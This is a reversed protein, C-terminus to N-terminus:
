LGGYTDAGLCYLGKQKQDSVYAALIEAIFLTNSGTDIQNVVKCELNVDCNEILPPKIWKAKKTKLTSEKLKDVTHGSHTGCYLVTEQMSVTPYSLVFEKNQSILRNTYREKCVSIAVMFPDFSTLTCWGITMVNAKGSRDISTLLFLREPFRKSVAKDISVEHM